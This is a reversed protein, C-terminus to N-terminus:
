SSVEFNIVIKRIEFLFFFFVKRWVGAVLREENRMGTTCGSCERVTRAVDDDITRWFFHSKIWDSMKSASLHKGSTEDTHARQLVDQKERPWILVRKPHRIDHHLAGDLLQFPHNEQAKHHCCICPWM